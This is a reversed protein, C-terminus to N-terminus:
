NRQRNVATSGMCSTSESNRPPLKAHSQTPMGHVSTQRPPCDFIIEKGPEAFVCCHSMCAPAKGCSCESYRWLSLRVHVYRNQKEKQMIATWQVRYTSSRAGTKPNGGYSILGVWVLCNCLCNGRLGLYNETSPFFLQTGGCFLNSFFITTKGELKTHIYSLTQKEHKLVFFFHAISIIEILLLFSFRLHWVHCVYGSVHHQCTFKIILLDILVMMLLNVIMKQSNKM